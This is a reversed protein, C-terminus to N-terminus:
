SVGVKIETKLTATGRDLVGQQTDEWHPQLVIDAAPTPQVELSASKLGSTATNPKIFYRLNFGKIVYASVVIHMLGHPHRPRTKFSSTEYVM